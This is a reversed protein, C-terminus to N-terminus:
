GDVSEPATATQSELLRGLKRPSSSSSPDGQGRSPDSTRRGGACWPILHQTHLPFAAGPKSLTRRKGARNFDAAMNKKEQKQQPWKIIM